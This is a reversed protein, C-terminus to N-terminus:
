RNRASFKNMGKQWDKQWQEQLENVVERARDEGQSEAIKQMIEKLGELMTTGTLYESEGLMELWGKKEKQAVSTKVATQQGKNVEAMLESESMSGIKAAFSPLDNSIVHGVSDMVKGESHDYYFGKMKGDRTQLGIQEGKWFSLTQTASKSYGWYPLMSKEGPELFSFNYGPFQQKLINDIVWDRSKGEGLRAEVLKYLNSADGKGSKDANGYAVAFDKLKEEVAGLAKEGTKVPVYEPPLDKNGIADYVSRTKFTHGAISVEREPGYHKGNETLLAGVTTGFRKATQELGMEGTTMVSVKDHEDRIGYLDGGLGIVKRKSIPVGATFHQRQQFYDDQNFLQLAYAYPDKQAEATVQPAKMTNDWWTAKQEIPNLPSHDYIMQAAAQEPKSMSGWLRGMHEMLVAKNAPSSEKALQNFTTLAFKIHEHRQTEAFKQQEFEFKEAPGPGELERKLLIGRLQANEQETEATQMSQFGRMLTMAQTLQTLENDRM